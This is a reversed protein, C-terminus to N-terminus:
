GNSSKRLDENILEICEDTACWPAGFDLDLRITPRKCRFCEQETNLVIYRGDESMKPDHQEDNTASLENVAQVLQWRLTRIRKELTLIRRPKKSVGREVLEIDELTFNLPNVSEKFRVTENPKLPRDLYSEMMVRHLYVWKPGDDTMIRIQKYKRNSKATAIRVTGIPQAPTRDPNSMARRTKLLQNWELFNLVDQISMIRLLALTGIVM